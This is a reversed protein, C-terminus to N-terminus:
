VDDARGPAMGIADYMGKEEWNFTDFSAAQRGEPDIVLVRITHEILTGEEVRTKQVEIGYADLVSAVEEEAGGLFLWRPDLEPDIDHRAFHDAIEDPTDETPNVSIHLYSIDPPSGLAHDLERLQFTIMPCAVVCKAYTFALITTRGGLSDLSVRRGDFNVLSFQPVRDAGCGTSIFVLWVVSVALALVRAAVAGPLPRNM